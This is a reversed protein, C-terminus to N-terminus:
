IVSITDLTDWIKDMDAQDVGFVMGMPPLVETRVFAPGDGHMTSFEADKNFAVEDRLCDRGIDIIDDETIDLDYCANILDRCFTVTVPNEGAIAFQCLGVSDLVANTIQERLSHEVAGEDKLEYKLGATHDAGMPSTYDSIEWISTGTVVM